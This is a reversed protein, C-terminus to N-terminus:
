ELNAHYGLRLAEINMDIFRPKVCRGVAQQWEELSGGSGNMAKCLAGLLVINACRINGAELALGNADLAVTNVKQKLTGVIDAPYAAGGQIVPMPMITATSMLLTGNPKLYDVYRLAELQEMAIIYDADGIDILPSYVGDGYRVYTVVSGGRQSMGHVESIKVSQGRAAAYDGIIHACLITGQGGVGCILINMSNMNNM